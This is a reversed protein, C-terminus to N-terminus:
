SRQVRNGSVRRVLRRMELVSLTSLVRPVPLGSQVIVEDILCVEDGIAQLVAQEQPNLQLEIPHRIQLGDERVSPQPLPGLEELVDDVDQVLKAGDRILQHCGRAMRNDVRGPVAFVERGQESAHKSTILAGSREAAEVVITGLSLGSILRNRQPFAGSLPPTRPPAESLLAGHAAVDKALDRHEPPYVNAIGSGLVAITRGGAAIAGRHAAADIGRALGSVITYGARALGGALREAQQTGYATAHRTGVIAIAMEDIAQLEGLMFLVGPPDPIESLRAPYKEDGDLLVQIQQAACYALEEDADVDRASDQIAQGLKQGIGRVERLETLSARLVAEATGFRELLAQRTIPGVGSILALRLAALRAPQPSLHNM